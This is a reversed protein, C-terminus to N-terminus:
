NQEFEMSVEGEEDQVGVLNRGLTEPLSEDGFNMIM